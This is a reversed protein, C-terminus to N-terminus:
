SCGDVFTKPALLIARATSVPIRAILMLTTPSDLSLAFPPPAFTGTIVLMVGAVSTSAPPAVATIAPVSKSGFVTDTVIPPALATTLVPAVVVEISTVTGAPM